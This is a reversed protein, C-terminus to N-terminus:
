VVHLHSFHAFDLRYIFDNWLTFDNLGAQILGLSEAQLDPARGVSSGESIEMVHITVFLSLRHTWSFVQLHM